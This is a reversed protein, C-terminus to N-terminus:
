QFKCFYQSVYYYEDNDDSAHSVVLYLAIDLSVHHTLYLELKVTFTKVRSLTSILSSSSVNIM